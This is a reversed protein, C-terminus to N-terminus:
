TRPAQSLRHFIPLTDLPALYEKLVIPGTFTQDTEHAQWTGPPVYIDRARRGAEVVPAVLFDNGLLFEDDCVLAREDRPALWFVPRVIPEGTRSAEEALRLIEPAFETHMEAYRRCLATCEEGFDWPAISFQLAPLLANLQTWRIMLEADPTENYANGGIMDPLVFPYGTLALSLLGTIVSKLGNAYSWDSTKDWQRFFIPAAQNFWGSRVETLGFNRAVFDVYHHTYDNRTPAFGQARGLWVADEPLFIAEGADFKFGDLGTKQQLEHLRTLFWNLADPNTADLLGGYGQWWKVLYPEGGPTQVLYGNGAGAQYADSESDCFPIVWATVKFGRRHLEDIMGKPDPFRDPAFDLDGYHTQWIDDIELVHHPYDHDIIEQAFNLVSDQDIAIKYRAWTTWTPQTFLESPPVRSPHGLRKVLQRYGALLDDALLIEFRLEAGDLSLLGDGENGPDIAPRQDFPAQGAGLDWDFRVHMHTTQNLAYRVPSHALVVSGNSSLWAPTQICLLGTPGNDSTILEAEPQMVRDLPWRQHLLEGQGYWYGHNRIALRQSRSSTWRFEIAPGAIAISLTADPFIIQAGSDHRHWEIIPQDHPLSELLTEGGRSLTFAFPAHSLALRFPPLDFDISM